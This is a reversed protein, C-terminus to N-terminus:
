GGEPGCWAQLPIVKSKVDIWVYMCVDTVNFGTINIYVIPMKVKLLFLGFHKIALLGFGFNWAKDGQLQKSIESSHLDKKELTWCELFILTNYV